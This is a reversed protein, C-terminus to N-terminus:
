GSLRAFARFKAILYKEAILKEEKTGTKQVLANKLAADQFDRGQQATRIDVWLLFAATEGKTVIFSALHAAILGFISGFVGKALFPVLSGVWAMLDAKLTVIAASKLAAIYEDRSM